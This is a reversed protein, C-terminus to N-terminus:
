FCYPWSDGLQGYKNPPRQVDPRETLVILSRHFVISPSFVCVTENYIFRKVDHFIILLKPGCHLFRTAAPAEPIFGKPIDGNDMNQFEQALHEMESHHLAQTERDDGGFPFSELVLSPLSSSSSSQRGRPHKLAEAAMRLPVVLCKCDRHTLSRAILILLKKTLLAACM